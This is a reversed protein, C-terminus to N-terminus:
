DAYLDEIVKSYKDAAVSRKLKLTPTLEGGVETFDTDLLAWKAVKQARSTAQKNAQTLGNDFYAMWIPDVRAEATTTALSGMEKAAELAAGTLKDSAAGDVDVEVELCLLVVLYKRKDGIVMAKSLAPMAAKLEDEILVPPINEGGATIILEKIRGTISIFGSPPPINPDDCSDISVIDGSLLYGEANVTEKTKEEMGMYGAFIHRGTYCLEGTEPDMKTQTGLLPRGVSGIKFADLTNVSHPGTCESQGFLELIPVDLSMFYKLIKVEIPAASVFFNQCRDFGLAQHAAGLLIQSLYYFYGDETTSEFELSEWHQLAVGKAWTSLMKKVGTTSRGVEQLKETASLLTPDTPPFLAISVVVNQAFPEKVYPLDEGV